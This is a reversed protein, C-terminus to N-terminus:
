RAARSTADTIIEETIKVILPSPWVGEDSIGSFEEGDARACCSASGVSVMRVNVSSSKRLHGAIQAHFDGGDLGYHFDFGATSM